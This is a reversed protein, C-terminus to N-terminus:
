KEIYFNDRGKQTPIRVRGSRTVPTFVLGENINREALPRRKIPTEPRQSGKRKRTSTATPSSQSDTLVKSSVEASISPSYASGGLSISTVQRPTSPVPSRPPSGIRACHLESRKAAARRAVQIALTDDKKRTAEIYRETANLRSMNREGQQGNPLEKNQAKAKDKRKQSIDAYTQRVKAVMSQWQEFIIGRSVAM